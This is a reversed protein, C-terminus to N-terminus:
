YVEKVGATFAIIEYKDKLNNLFDFVYPRVLINTKGKHIIAHELTEDLDLVLTYKFKPNISPLISNESNSLLKTKYLSPEPILSIVITQTIIKIFSLINLRNISLLLSSISDGILKTDFNYFLRCKKKLKKLSKNIIQNLISDKEMLKDFLFREINLEEYQKLEENGFIENLIEYYTSNVKLFNIYILYLLISINKFIKEYRNINEYYFICFLIRSFLCMQIKLIKDFYNGLSYEFILFLDGKFLKLIYFYTIFLTKLRQNRKYENEYLNQEILYHLKILYFCININDNEKLNNLLSYDVKNESTKIKINKFSIIKSTNLKINKRNLRFSHIYKQNDKIKIKLLKEKNRSPFITQNNLSSDIQPLIFSNSIIHNENSFKEHLKLKYYLSMKTKEKEDQLYIQNINPLTFDRQTRM